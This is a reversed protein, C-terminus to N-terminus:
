HPNHHTRHCKKCIKCLWIVELPKSYDEHHMQVEANGCYRCPQPILKGRSKYQNAYARAISKIQQQTTMDGYPVRNMRM